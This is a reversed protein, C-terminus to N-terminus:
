PYVTLGSRCVVEIFLGDTNLSWRSIRGLTIVIVKVQM